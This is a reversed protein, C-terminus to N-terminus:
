DGSLPKHYLVMGSLKTNDAARIKQSVFCQYQMDSFSPPPARSTCVGLTM